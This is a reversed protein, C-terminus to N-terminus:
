MYYLHDTIPMTSNRRLRKNMNGKTESNGQWKQNHAPKVKQDSELQSAEYRKTTYNKKTDDPLEQWKDKKSYIPKWVNFIDIM